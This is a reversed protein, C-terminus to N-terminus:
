LPCLRRGSEVISTSARATRFASAKRQKSFPDATREEHHVVGGLAEGLVEMRNAGAHELGVLADGIAHHLTTPDGDEALTGATSAGTHRELARPGQDCDDLHIRDGPELRQQFPEGKGLSRFRQAPLLDHDRHGAGPIDHARGIERQDGAAGHQRVGPVTRELDVHRPQEGIPRNSLGEPRGGPNRGEERPIPPDVQEGVTVHHVESLQARAPDRDLRHVEPERELRATQGRDGKALNRRLGADDGRRSRDVLLYRTGVQRNRRRRRADREAPRTGLSRQQANNWGADLTWGAQRARAL